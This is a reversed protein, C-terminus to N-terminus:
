KEPQGERFRLHWGLGTLVVGFSGLAISPTPTSAIAYAVLAAVLLAVGILLVVIGRVARAYGQNAGVFDPFAPDTSVVNEVGM